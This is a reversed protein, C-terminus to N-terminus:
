PQWDPNSEAFGSTTIRIPHTTNDKLAAEVNLEYLDLNGASDMDSTFIITQGDPSWSFPVPGTASSFMAQNILKVFQGNLNGLYFYVAEPCNVEILLRKGDPSWRMLSSSATTDWPSAGPKSCQEPDPAWTALRTQDQGNARMLNWVLTDRVLYTITQGSGIWADIPLVSKVLVTPPHSDLSIQDIDSETVSSTGSADTAMQTAVYDLSHGDPSWRLQSIVSFIGLDISQLLNGDLDVIQLSMEAPGAANAPDQLQSVLYAIKQSDPSWAMIQFDPAWSYYFLKGDGTIQHLNSGDPDM